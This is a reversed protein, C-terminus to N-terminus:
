TNEEYNLRPRRWILWGLYVGNAWALLCVGAIQLDSMVKEKSQM